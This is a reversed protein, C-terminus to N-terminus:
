AEGFYQENLDAIEDETLEAIKLIHFVDEFEQIWFEKASSILNQDNFWYFPVVVENGEKRIPAPDGITAGGFGGFSEWRMVNEEADYAPDQKLIEEYSNGFYKEM